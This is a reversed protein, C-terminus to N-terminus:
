VTPTQNQIDAPKIEQMVEIGCRVARTLNVLLLPLFARLEQINEHTLLLRVYKDDLCKNHFKITIQWPAEDKHQSDNDAEKYDKSIKKVATIVNKWSEKIATAVDQGDTNKFKEQYRTLWGQHRALLSKLLKQLIDVEQQLQPNQVVEQAFMRMTYDGEPTSKSATVTTSCLVLLFLKKM